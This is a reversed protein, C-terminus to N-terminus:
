LTVTGPDIIKLTTIYKQLFAGLVIAVVIQVVVGAALITGGLDSLFANLTQAPTGSTLILGYLYDNWSFLFSIVAGAAIGPAALPLLAHRFAQSRTCGDLRACMEIDRPLASFFGMLVWAVVPVTISMQIIVLGPITGWLHLARFLFYYPLLVTLPPVMRTGIVVGLILGRGKMQLRGLAYGGPVAVGMTVVMVSLAVVLSNAIGQRVAMAEQFPLLGALRLYNDLSPAPPFVLHRALQSGTMFSLNFMDYIPLLSYVVAIAAFFLLIVTRRRTAM